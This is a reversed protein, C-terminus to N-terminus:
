AVPRPGAGAAGVGDGGGLGAAPGGRQLEQRAPLVVGPPRPVEGPAPGGGRGAGGAVRPPRHGDRGRRAGGGGGGCGGGAEERRRGAGARLKRAVRCAGTYLWNGGGDRWSVSGARRALVLFTAQFADEADQEQALLRRCAGWVLPGHRGLLAAFADEDRR